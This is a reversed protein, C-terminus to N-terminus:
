QLFTDVHGKPNNSNSQVFMSFIEHNKIKATCTILFCHVPVPAILLCIRGEFGFHSIVLIVFLCICHPCFALRILLLKGFPPWEAVWVWIFTYHVLMLHLMVSVGVGFVSLLSGCWFLRRPVTLLLYSPPKLSTKHCWDWGWNSIHYLFETPQETRM